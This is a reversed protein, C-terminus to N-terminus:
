QPPAAPAPPPPPPKPADHRAACSSFITGVTAALLVIRVIRKKM